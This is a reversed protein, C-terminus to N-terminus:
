CMSIKVHRQHGEHSKTGGPQGYSLQCSETKVLEAVLTLGVMEAEFVTHEDDRGLHKRVSKVEVGRRFLVAVAGVMGEICLWYSFVKIDDRVEEAEKVAQIKM